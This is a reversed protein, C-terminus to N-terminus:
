PSDSSGRAPEPRALLMAGLFSLAVGVAVTSGIANLVPLRSTALIGFVSVTSLVCVTLGHFTRGRMGADAEGRSFFLSYDISIGVVLLLSVLHFLSLLEGTLRLLAVDIIVAVLGPLLVLITRRASRLGLWLVLAIALVGWLVRIAAHERFGAMLSGTDRKLDLYLLDPNQRRSLFSQLAQADNVGALTILVVWGDDVTLLSSRLRMGLTTGELDGPLLPPLTRAAAVAKEFPAFAGQKFPTGALAQELNERLRAPAPLSNRRERQTRASPLYRAALDFSGIVGDAVLRRLDGALVESAQLASEQDPARILLVNNADPVGLQANLDRDRAMVSQPIPSLAAIDDQWPASDRSVLYALAAFGAVVMMVGWAKGPRPCRAYWDAIPSPYSPVYREPLLGVLGWRTCAAAALLGAIAFTAFQMLGPFDTGSMALYGMATTIAGLRITPWIGALSRRVPEGPNLHSFLHIPYDIAVGIVTVGFALVIGHIAGFILNVAVIGAAVASLLPLGGILLLRVSRYSLLLILIAVLAAAIGLRRADARIIDRSTVAFVGPGSLALAVSGDAAEDVAERIAQQAREQPDLDFGRARTQALLLARQGEADFWVGRLSRPRAQGRWADLMARMEATPDQSLWPRDFSPVPSALERLRTQLAMRLSGVSFREASVTPSLLYRYAFLREREADDFLQEGNAVRVFLGGARLRAAVKKSLQALREPSAGGLTILTLRALPGERLENMLLRQVSTAARPMFSIMDNRVSTQFLAWALAAALGALWLGAALRQKNM